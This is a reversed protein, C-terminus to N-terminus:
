RPATQRGSSAIATPVALVLAAITAIVLDFFLTMAIEKGSGASIAARLRGYRIAVVIPFALKLLSSSWWQARQWFDVKYAADCKECRIEAPPRSITLLGPRSDLETNCHTCHFTLNWFRFGSFAVVTKNHSRLAEARNREHQAIAAAQSCRFCRYGNETLDM